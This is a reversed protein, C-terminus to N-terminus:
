VVTCMYLLQEGAYQQLVNWFWQQLCFVAFLENSDIFFCQKWDLFTTEFPVLGCAQCSGHSRLKVLGTKIFAM